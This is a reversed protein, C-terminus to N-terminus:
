AYKPRVVARRSARDCRTADLAVKEDGASDSPAILSKYIAALEESQERAKRFVPSDTPPTLYRQPNADILTLVRILDSADSVDIIHGNVNDTVCAGISGRDSAIVWCGFHLAERTVLGFSEPWISPALLVDIRAYLDAVDAEPVKVFFDIENKNWIERRTQGVRLGDDM